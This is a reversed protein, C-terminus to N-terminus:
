LAGPDGDGGNMVNCILSTSYMEDEEEGERKKGIFITLAEM